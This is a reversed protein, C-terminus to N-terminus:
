KERNLLNGTEACILNGVACAHCQGHELTDNLYAKVLVDVSNEFTAKMNRPPKSKQKFQIIKLWM